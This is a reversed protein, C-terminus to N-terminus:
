GKIHKNITTLLQKCHPSAEAVKVPDLRELLKPAHQTKHYEGKTTKITAAKLGNEVDQKTIREINRTRKLKGKFFGKGYFDSMMEKDAYFWSEMLQVMFNLQEDDILQGNRPNWDKRQKVAKRYDNGKLVDADMLLINFDEPNRNVGILFDRVPTAGGAILKISRKGDLHKKFFASFGPKLVQDGEFYVRISM